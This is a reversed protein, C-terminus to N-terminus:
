DYINRRHGLRVVLVELKGDEIRCLIRYDDVRYRWFEGLEGKLCKGFSRPDDCGTIRSDLFTLIRRSPERGLKRMQKLARASIRYEWSM